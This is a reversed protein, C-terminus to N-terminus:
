FDQPIIPVIRSGPLTMTGTSASTFQISVTGDSGNSVPMGNYACSICQGNRAKDLTGNFTTGGNTLPGTAIYWESEGNAKYSYITLVLVGHKVDLNYGSGSEAPNWWLGAVPTIGAGTGGFGVVDVPVYSDAPDNNGLEGNAGHGWCKIGGTTTVACTHFVGASLAIVGAGLSPVAIPVHSDATSGNGLKGNGNDGWCTVGGAVTLACTHTSGGTIAAVGGALDVVDVPFPSDILSDNGLQGASNSGWCKVGGTATLACTHGFPMAAIAAIGSDLGLVAVPVFSNDTSNNGLQGADNFGWCKVAGATTLACAHAGSISIARAGSALGSVAVPIRSAVGTGNGLQGVDNRGWCKVAGGTTLACSNTDGSAVAAVGSGLGFVTVPVASDVTSDNGLQGYANAGWCRAAGGATVICAHGPTASLTAVGSALGIVDVPVATAVTSNNGLQGNANFGWCKAGATTTIACTFGGGGAVNAATAAGAALPAGSLAAFTALALMRLVQQASRHETMQQELTLGAGAPIRAM